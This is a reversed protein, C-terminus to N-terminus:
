VLVRELRIAAVRGAKLDLNLLAVEEALELEHGGHTTHFHGGVLHVLCLENAAETMKCDALYTNFM